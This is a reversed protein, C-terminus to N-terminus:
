GELVIPADASTAVLRAPLHLIDTPVARCVAPLHSRRDALARVHAVACVGGNRRDRCSRDCCDDRDGNAFVARVRHPGMRASVALHVGHDRALVSHVAPGGVERNREASFGRRDPGCRWRRCKM